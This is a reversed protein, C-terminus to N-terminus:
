AAYRPRTLDLYSDDFVHTQLPSLFVIAFPEIARLPDVAYAPLEASVPWLRNDLFQL